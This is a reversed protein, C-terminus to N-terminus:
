APLEVLVPRLTHLRNYADRTEDALTAGEPPLCLVTVPADSARLHEAIMRLRLADPVVVVPGPLAALAGEQHPAFIIAPAGRQGILWDFVASPCARDRAGYVIWIM